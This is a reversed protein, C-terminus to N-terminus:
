RKMKGGKKISEPEHKATKESDTGRRLDHKLEGNEKKKREGVWTNWIVTFYGARVQAKFIGGAYKALGKHHLRQGGRV